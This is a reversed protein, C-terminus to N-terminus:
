LKMADEGDSASQTSGGPGKGVGLVSRVGTLVESGAPGIGSSFGEDVAPSDLWSQPIPVM